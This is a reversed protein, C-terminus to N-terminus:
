GLRGLRKYVDKRHGILFVTVHEAEDDVEYLIRHEGQDVRYGPGEYGALKRCDHPRPDSQRSLLKMVVQKFQKPPYRKIEKVVDQDVSLRYM